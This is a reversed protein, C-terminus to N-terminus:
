QGAETRVPMILYTLEPRSTSTILGPKPADALRIQIDAGAPFLRLGDLLFRPNFHVVNGPGEVTVGPLTVTSQMDGAGTRDPTRICSTNDTRADVAVPTTRGAAVQARTVADVLKSQAGTVVTSQEAQGGILKRWDPFTGDVTRTAYTRRGATFWVTAHEASRSDNSGTVTVAIKQERKFASAATRIAHAPVLLTADFAATATDAELVALRYRDTAAASLKGVVNELAVGTLVPLTDDRGAAGAVRDLDALDAAGLDAVAQPTGAPEAPWDEVPLTPIRYTVLGDANWTEVTLREGDHQLRISAKNPLVAVAAALAAAPIAAEGRARGPAAVEAAAFRTYDYGAIRLVGRAVTLKVSSLIVMGSRANTVARRAHGLAGHLEDRDVTIDFRRGHSPAATAPPATPQELTATM